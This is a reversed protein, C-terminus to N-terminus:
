TLDILVISGDEGSQFLDFGVSDATIAMSPMVDPYYVRMLIVDEPTLRNAALVVRDFYYDPDTHLVVKVQELRTETYIATEDADPDVSCALSNQFATLEVNQAFDAKVTPDYESETAEPLYQPNLLESVEEYTFEVTIYGAAYPAIDYPDFSFCIGDRTLYWNEATVGRLHDAVTQAYGEFLFAAESERNALEELIKTELESVADESVLIDRLFIQEGTATDFNLATANSGPHVGGLYYSDVKLLSMVRNDTRYPTFQIGTSYPYQLIGAELDAKAGAQVEEAYGEAESVLLNLSETMKQAADPNAPIVVQPKVGEYTFIPQDGERAYMTVPTLIVAVLDSEPLEEEFPETETAETETPEPETPAEETPASTETLMPETKGQSQCAMLSFCLAACLLMLLLKKM